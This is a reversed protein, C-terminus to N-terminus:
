GLSEFPSRESDQDEGIPRGAGPAVRPQVDYNELTSPADPLRKVEDQVSRVAPEGDRVPIVQLGLKAADKFM